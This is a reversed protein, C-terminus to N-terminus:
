LLRMLGIALAAVVILALWWPLGLIRRVAGKGFERRVFEEYDFDDEDGYGSPIGAGWKDADESWGTADDSGCEPCARAGARVEAGCHPCVFWGYHKGRRM